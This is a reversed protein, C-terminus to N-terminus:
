PLCMQIWKWVYRTHDTVLQVKDMLEVMLGNWSMGQWFFQLTSCEHSSKKNNINNNNNKNNNNNNNTQKESKKNLQKSLMWVVYHNEEKGPHYLWLICLSCTCHHCKHEDNAQCKSSPKRKSNSCNDLVVTNQELSSLWFLKQRAFEEPQSADLKQSTLNQIWNQLWIIGQPSWIDLIFVTVCISLLELVLNESVHVIIIEFEQWADLFLLMCLIWYMGQIRDEEGQETNVAGYSNLKSCYQIWWVVTYYKKNIVLNNKYWTSAQIGHVIVTITTWPFPWCTQNFIAM